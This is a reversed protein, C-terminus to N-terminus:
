RLLQLALAPTQNAQALISASAEQLIKFRALQATEQAVDADVIRGHAVIGNEQQSRLVNLASSARTTAAGLSGREASIRTLTATLTDLASLAGERTYLSLRQLNTTKTADQSHYRLSAAIAGVLDPVGDRNGDILLATGATVGVNIGTVTGFTGDGVGLSYFMQNSATTSSGYLDLIGDGNIDGVRFSNIALNSGFSNAAGLNGAGDNLRIDFSATSSTRSTALDIYGDGNFDALLVRSAATTAYSTLAGFTGDGNGMAVYTTNGSQSAIAIDARGDGNLDALAAIRPVAGPAIRSTFSFTGDGNGRFVDISSFTTSAATFDLKGDGDVDGVSLRFYAVGASVLTGAALPTSSSGSGALFYLSGSTDGALVDTKGDNNFDGITLYQAASAGIATTIAAQYTGDGNGLLVNITAGTGITVVDQIGDGNFDANEAITGGATNTSSTSSSSFTGAGIARGFESNLDISFGGNVGYGGQARINSISRNLLSLGNFSTSAVIRNFEDVLSTAGSSLSRRQASSLSGNASQTALEQLQTTVASLQELAGDSINIASIVDNFNRIGQGYVRNNVNLGTAVAVGAVDDRASNIRLGSSLREISTTVGSTADALRRSAKLALLNAGLTITPM